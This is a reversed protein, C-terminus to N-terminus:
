RVWTSVSVPIYRQTNDMITTACGIIYLVTNNNVYILGDNDNHVVASSSNNNRMDLSGNTNNTNSLLLSSDTLPTFSYVLCVATFGASNATNYVNAIDKSIRLYKTNSPLNIKTVQPTVTSNGTTDYVGIYTFLNGDPQGYCLAGIKIQHHPTNLPM